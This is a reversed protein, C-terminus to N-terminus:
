PLWVRAHHPVRWFDLTTPSLARLGIKLFTSFVAVQSSASQRSQPFCTNGVMRRPPTQGHQVTGMENEVGLCFASFGFYDGGCVRAWTFTCRRCRLAYSAFAWALTVRARSIDRATGEARAWGNTPFRSDTLVTLSQNIMKNTYIKIKKFFATWKNRTGWMTGSNPNWMVRRLFSYRFM